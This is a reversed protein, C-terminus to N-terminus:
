DGGGVDGAGVCGTLGGEIADLGGAAGNGGGALFGVILCNTSENLGPSKCATM